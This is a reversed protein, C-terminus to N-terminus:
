ASQKDAQRPILRRGDHSVSIVGGGFEGAGQQHGAVMQDRPHAGIGDSIERGRGAFAFSASPAGDIAALDLEPIQEGDFIAKDFGWTRDISFGADAQAIVSKIQTPTRQTGQDAKDPHDVGTAPSQHQKAGIEGHWRQVDDPEVAPPEFNFHAEFLGYMSKSGIGVMEPHLVHLGDPAAVAGLVGMALGFGVALVNAALQCGVFTMDLQTQNCLPQKLIQRDGESPNNPKIEVRVDAGGRGLFRWGLPDDGLRQAMAPGFKERTWVIACDELFEEGGFDAEVSAAIGITEFQFFSCSRVVRWYPVEMESALDAPLLGHELCTEVIIRFAPDECLKQLARDYERESIGTAKCFHEIM